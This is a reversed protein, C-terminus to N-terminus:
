GFCCWAPQLLAKTPRQPPEGGCARRTTRFRLWARCPVSLNMALSVANARCSATATNRAAQPLEDDGGVVFVSVLVIVTAGGADDDDALGDDALGDGDVGGGGGGGGASVRAAPGRDTNISIASGAPDSHEPQPSECPVSTQVTVDGYSAM